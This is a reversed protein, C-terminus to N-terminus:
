GENERELDLVLAYAEKKRLGFREVLEQQLSKGKQGENFRERAYQQAEEPDSSQEMAGEVVLTLEGKPAEREVQSLLESLSGPLFQEYLKTLERALVAQRNGLVDLIDRLQKAAKHPSLYLVLTAPVQAYRELSKKRKGSADPLFGLFLFPEPPLGSACLASLVASAGPIPVVNLGAERCARVLVYGPDSVGPTGADSILALNEGRQLRAVVDGSRGAENHEHCSVMPTSLGYHALLKRSHRTDEALILDVTRLTELGRTSFDALNGIPTSVLYLTGSM